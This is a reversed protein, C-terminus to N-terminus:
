LLIKIIVTKKRKKSTPSLVTDNTIDSISSQQFSKKALFFILNLADNKNQESSSSNSSTLTESESTKCSNTSTFTKSHCTRSDSPSLISM